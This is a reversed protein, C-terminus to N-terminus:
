LGDKIVKYSKKQPMQNQKLKLRPSIDDFRSSMPHPLLQPKRSSLDFTLEKLALGVFHDFM